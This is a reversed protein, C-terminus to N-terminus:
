FAEAVDAATATPCHAVANPGASWVPAIVALVILM